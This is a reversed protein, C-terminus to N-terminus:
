FLILPLNQNVFPSRPHECTILAHLDQWTAADRDILCQAATVKMCVSFETIGMGDVEAKELYAAKLCKPYRQLLLQISRALWRCGHCLV